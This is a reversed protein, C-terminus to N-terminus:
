DFVKWTEFRVSERGLLSGSVTVVGDEVTFETVTVPNCGTEATAGVTSLPFTLGCNQCQLAGSGIYEFWAYPSGGCSQCTNLALRAGDGDCVAILQMPVTGGTYDIFSPEESLSDLRFTLDPWGADEFGAAGSLALLEAVEENQANCAILVIVLLAIGILILRTRKEHSSNREIINGRATGRRCCACCRDRM